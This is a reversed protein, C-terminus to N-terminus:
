RYIFHRWLSRLPIEFWQRLSPKEWGNTWACILSFYWMEADSAKTLSIWWHGTFGVYLPGTVRFINEWKIVDDHFHVRLLLAVTGDGCLSKAFCATTWPTRYLDFRMFLTGPSSIRWADKFQVHLKLDLEQLNPIQIDQIESWLFIYM